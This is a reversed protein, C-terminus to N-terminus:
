KRIGIDSTDIPKFGIKYAPSDPLLTFDRNAPDKFKPDAIISEQELDYMERIEELSIDKYGDNPWAPYDDTCMFPIYEGVYTVSGSQKEDFMLNRYSAYTGREMHIKRADFIPSGSSYIINGEFVLGLHEEPRSVRLMEGDSFAFINNRITNMAGYHQMYCDHKTDYCINNEVLVQSSGEDTYIAWGGYVRSKIDHILNNRVITGPQPGLLYVGGMDSLLGQGLHYIHNKEIINSHSVSQKYGWCWGCSVGSYYLDHIENHSIINDFSHMLIIGCGAFFRRGCSYIENDSFTNNHSWDSPDSNCDAGSIKIGGAAGDFIYNKTIRLNTVGSFGAVGYGGFNTIKCNTIECNDAYEIHILGDSGSAAQNDSASPEPDNRPGKCSHDGKTNCFHIDRFTVSKVPANQEGTINVIKKLYPVFVETVQENERPIYYVTRNPRDFYWEGPNKFMEAVNEIYFTEDKKIRFHSKYKWVIKGTEFDMSDIPTHEDVWLHCLTLFCDEPSYFHKLMKPDTTVWKSGIDHCNGNFDNSKDVDNEMTIVSLDGNEPYRTFKARQGNVYLDSFKPANGYINEPVEFSLCEVGNFTAKKPNRLTIGGSFVVNNNFPEITVNCIENDIDITKDLEWVGDALRITIPLNLGNSRLKKVQSLAEHINSVNYATEFNFPLPHKKDSVTITTFSNM